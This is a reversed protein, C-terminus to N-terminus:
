EVKPGDGLAALRALAMDQDGDAIGLLRRLNALARHTRLKIAGVTVGLAEGARGPSLGDLKTLKIAVRQNAPLRALASELKSRLSADSESPPERDVGAGDLRAELEPLQEGGHLRVRARRHRRAHDLFTRHAISFFWPLPDAGRVYASRANHIKFFTDQLLDEAAARERTLTMLYGLLRPAVNGYIAGFAGEDGDCYRQMLEEM